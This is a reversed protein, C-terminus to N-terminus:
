LTLKLGATITKMPPMFLGKTEPDFGDYNTITLLNQGSLVVSLNNVKYRSLLRSLNYRIAVNKLRIFSADGWVASSLRYEDYLTNGALTTAAPVSAHDGKQQWRGLASVDKNYLVGYPQSSYGYNLLQGEQKVFQFLVDLELGKYSVANQLGGFYDPMTKGLITYDVNEQPTASGSPTSIQAKGTEPDIGTFEFGKVISLSKGVVYVDKYTSSEIGPYEMLENRNFSLNLMTRWEFDKKRINVSTVDFEWGTNLVKAPFNATIFTFGVQPSLMFPVLQNGSVNRYFNTNFLIRDDLFGLELAAELKRNEEWHYANNPLRSPVIAAQGDYPFSTTTWSELYRYDSIRDNGTLGASARLKGFSLVNNDRLFNEKSFVWAAGVAGFNGFRNDPGFRTSGDRRFSANLIYKEDWNYTIRGFGSTYRYFGYTSATPITLKGASKIDELVADNPFNEATVRHGQRLDEQWTAGALLQLVGKGINRTYDIQPEVIWSTGDSNGFFSFSGTTSLPNQAILPYTQIQKMDTKTYGLNVKVNLGPLVTYRLTGNAILNNTRVDSTRQLIALPNLFSTGFWYYKGVSDYLPYNPALNYYSTLDTPISKDRISSFNVSATAQFKGDLANHELSLHSGARKFPLNNPMVTTQHDYTGSLMFRTQETGGSISASVNTFNATNGIMMKQWDTQAKQDWVMLDPATGEDPTRGDNAFAEKRMKLYEETSLMDLMNVVKSGGSTVNFSFRTTGSTGKKTTILIVGNAGRSGYIATADADKLIDIREIDNPNISALPSQEGNASTFQNLPESVFPVGDVIYLPDNKGDISNRGRLMVSFSSGPLGNSSTIMLGSVRGQLAALPDLVPQDAIDKSQVTSVSGTNKRRVTSGYGIIVAEDLANVAVRMTLTLPGWNSVQVEQPEFGIYTLVLKDGPGADITFQGNIDTVVGKTTGKVKISVGILVQGDKDIVKGTLPRAQQQNQPAVPKRKLFITKDKITYDLPQNRFVATLFDTLAQNRAQITVPKTAELMERDYFFLFGTQQKVTAFVEELPVNKLSASVSQAYGAASVRLCGAIILLVTLRM